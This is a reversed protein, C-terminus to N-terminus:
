GLRGETAFGHCGPEYRALLANAMEGQAGVVDGLRSRVELLDQAETQAVVDSARERAVELDVDGEQVDVLPVVSYRKTRPKRLVQMVEHQLHSREVVNTGCEIAREGVFHADHLAQPTVWVVL